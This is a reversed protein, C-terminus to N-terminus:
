IKDWVDLLSPSDTNTVLPLEQCEQLKYMYFLDKFGCGSHSCLFHVFVSTFMRSLIKGRDRPFVPFPSKQPHSPQVLAWHCWSLHLSPDVKWDVIILIHCMKYHGSPLFVNANNVLCVLRRNQCMCFSIPLFSKQSNPSLLLLLEWTDVVCM